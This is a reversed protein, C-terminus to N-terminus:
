APPAYPSPSDTDPKQYLVGPPADHASAALQLIHGTMPDQLQRKIELVMRCEAGLGKLESTPRASRSAQLAADCREAEAIAEFRRRTDELVEGLQRALELVDQSSRRVLRHFGLYPTPRAHFVKPVQKEHRKLLKRFGAVNIEVYQTHVNMAEVLEDYEGCLEALFRTAGKPDARIRLEVLHKCLDSPNEALQPLAKELLHLRSDEILMGLEIGRWQLDAIRRELDDESTRIHATIQELDEEVISFLQRDHGAVQAALDMLAEATPPAEGAIPDASLTGQWIQEVIALGSQYQRLERVTRNIAEKILKHSVYPAGSHDDSVQLALKKGYRM